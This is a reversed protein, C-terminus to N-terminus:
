INRIKNFLSVKQLESERQATTHFRERNEQNPLM